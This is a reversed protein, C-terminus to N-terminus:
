NMAWAILHTFSVKGGRTRRLHNNIVIRNDIMLKAPVTRVSTATPVQLSQDMNAALAKAMGKLPAVTDTAEAADATDIVPISTTTLTPAEAPIPQVKPAISTTKAVPATIPAQDDSFAPAPATAPTPAPTVSVGSEAARSEFLPWWTEEVLHPDKQYLSWLEDVLWENAGFEVSDDTSTGVTDSDSVRRQESERGLFQQSFGVPKTV